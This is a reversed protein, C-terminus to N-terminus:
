SQSVNMFNRTGSERHPIFVFGHTFYNQVVLSADFNVFKHCINANHVITFHM